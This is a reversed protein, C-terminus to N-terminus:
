DVWGHRCAFAGFSRLTAVHRNWAAPSADPYGDALGQALRQPEIRSLPQGEGVARGVRALTLGYVRRTGPAVDRRLFAEVASKWTATGPSPVTRLTRDSRAM